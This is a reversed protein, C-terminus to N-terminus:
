SVFDVFADAQSVIQIKERELSSKEDTILVGEEVLDAMLTGTLYAYLANM